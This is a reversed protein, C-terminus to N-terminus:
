LEEKEHGSENPNGDWRDMKLVNWSNDVMPKFSISPNMTLENLALEGRKEGYEGRSGPSALTKQGQGSLPHSDNGM